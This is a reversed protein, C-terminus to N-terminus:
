SLCCMSIFGGAKLRLGFLELLFSGPKCLSLSERQGHLGALGSPLAMARLAKQSESSCLSRLLCHRQEPLAVKGGRGGRGWFQRFM